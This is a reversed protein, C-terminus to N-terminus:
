LIGAYSVIMPPKYFPFDTKTLLTMLEGTKLSLVMGHSTFLSLKCAHLCLITEEKAVMLNDAVAMFFLWHLGMKNTSWSGERKRRLLCLNRRHDSAVQITNRAWWVM